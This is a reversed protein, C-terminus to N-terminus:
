LSSATNALRLIPDAGSSEAESQPLVAADPNSPRRQLRSSRVRSRNRVPRHLLRRHLITSLFIQARGPISSQYGRHDLRAWERSLESLRSRRNRLYTGMKSDAP